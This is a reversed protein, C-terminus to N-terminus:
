CGDAPDQKGALMKLLEKNHSQSADLETQLRQAKEVATQLATMMQSQLNCISQAVKNETEAVTAM